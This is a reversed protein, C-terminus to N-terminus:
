RVRVAAQRDDSMPSRGLSILGISYALAVGAVSSGHHRIAEGGERSRGAPGRGAGPSIRTPDPGYVAARGTTAILGFSYALAVGAV